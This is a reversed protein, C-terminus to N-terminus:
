EYESMLRWKTNPDCIGMIFANFVIEQELRRTEAEQQELKEILEERSLHDFQTKWHPSGMSEHHSLGSQLTGDMAECAACVSPGSGPLLLSCALTRICRGPVWSKELEAVCDGDEDEFDGGEYREEIWKEYKAYSCGDCVVANEVISMAMKLNDMSNLLEPAEPVVNKLDTFADRVQVKHSLQEGDVLVTCRPFRYWGPGYNYLALGEGKKVARWFQVGGRSKNVHDSIEVLGFNCETSNVPTTLGARWQNVAATAAAQVASISEWDVDAPEKSAKSFIAHCESELGRVHACFRATRARGHYKGLQGKGFKARSFYNHLQMSTVQQDAPLFINALTEGSKYLAHAAPRPKSYGAGDIFRLIAYTIFERPMPQKSMGWSGLSPSRTAPTEEHVQEAGRVEATKLDQSCEVLTRNADCLVKQPPGEQSEISRESM